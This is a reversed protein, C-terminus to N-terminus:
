ALRGGGPHSEDVQRSAPPTDPTTRGPLGPRGLADDHRTTRPPLSDCAGLHETCPDGINRLPDSRGPRDLRCWGEGEARPAQRDRDRSGLALGSGRAPGIGGGAFALRYWDLLTAISPDDNLSPISVEVVLATDAPELYRTLHDRPEGRVVLDPRPM